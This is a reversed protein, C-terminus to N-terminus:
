NWKDQPPIPLTFVPVGEEDLEQSELRTTVGRISRQASEKYYIKRAESAFDSGVDETHTLIFDLVRAFDGQSLPQNSKDTKAVPATADAAQTRIKAAPLKEV